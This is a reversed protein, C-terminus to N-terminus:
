TQQPCACAHCLSHHTGPMTQESLPNAPHLILLALVSLGLGRRASCNLEHLGLKALLIGPIGSRIAGQGSDQLSARDEGLGEGM